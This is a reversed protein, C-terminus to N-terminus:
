FDLLVFSAALAIAPPLDLVHFLGWGHQAALKAAGLSSLLPVLWTMALAMGFLSINGFWRLGLSTVTARSPQRAEWCAIGLFAVAFAWGFLTSADPWDTM